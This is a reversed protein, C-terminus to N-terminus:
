KRLIVTGFKIVQGEFNVIIPEIMQDVILIDDPDFDEINIPTVPMGPDYEHFTVDIVKLELQSLADEIQKLFWRYQNVYRQRENEDIKKLLREFVSGFRFSEVAINIIVDRQLNNYDM